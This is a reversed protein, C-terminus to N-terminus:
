QEEQNVRRHNAVQHENANLNHIEYGPREDHHETLSVITLHTGKMALTNWSGSPAYTPVRYREPVLSRNRLGSCMALGVQAAEGGSIATVIQRNLFFGQQTRSSFDRTNLRKGPCAATLLVAAKQHDTQACTRRWKQVHNQSSIPVIKPVFM